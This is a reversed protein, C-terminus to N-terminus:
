TKSTVAMRARTNTSLSDTAVMAMTVRFMKRTTTNHSMRKTTILDIKSNLKKRKV